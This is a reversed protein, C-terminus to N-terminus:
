GVWFFFHVFFSCEGWFFVGIMFWVVVFFGGFLGLDLWSALGALDGWVCLFTHTSTHQM